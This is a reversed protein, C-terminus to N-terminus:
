KVFKIGQMLYKITLGQFLVTWLITVVTYLITYIKFRDFDAERIHDAEIVLWKIYLALSLGIAGRLGAYSMILIEKWSIKRGILNLIPWFVIM